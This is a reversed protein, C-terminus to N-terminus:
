KNEIKFNREFNEITKRVSKYKKLLILAQNKNIKLEEMVIKVGREKLKSNSLKMDIM